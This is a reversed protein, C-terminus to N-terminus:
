LKGGMEKGIGADVLGLRLGTHTVTSQDTPVNM